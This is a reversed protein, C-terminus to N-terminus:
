LQRIVCVNEHFMVIALTAAAVVAAATMAEILKM